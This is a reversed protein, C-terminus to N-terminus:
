LGGSHCDNCLYAPDYAEEPHKFEQGHPSLQELQAGNGQALIIHCANCDSAKISRKGDTSKHKSDHCRFCGPWDKHGINDPYARWDAKMEPFFNDHYIQQVQAIASQV